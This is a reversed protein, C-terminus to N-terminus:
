SVMFFVCPWDDAVCSPWCCLSLLVCLPRWAFTRVTILKQTQM